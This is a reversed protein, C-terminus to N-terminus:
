SYKDIFFKIESPRESYKGIERIWHLHQLTNFANTMM